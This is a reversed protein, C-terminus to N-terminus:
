IEEKSEPNNLNAKIYITWNKIQLFHQYVLFATILFYKIVERGEPAWTVPEKVKFGLSKWSGSRLFIISEKCSIMKM